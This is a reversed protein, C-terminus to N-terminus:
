RVLKSRRARPIFGLLGLLGIVGWPFGKKEKTRDAPRLWRRGGYENRDHGNANGTHSGRRTAVNGVDNATTAGTANTTNASTM